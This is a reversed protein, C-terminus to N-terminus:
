LQVDKPLNNACKSCYIPSISSATKAVHGCSLVVGTIYRMFAKKTEPALEVEVVRRPDHTRTM